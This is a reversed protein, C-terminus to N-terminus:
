LILQRFARSFGALSRQLRQYVTTNLAFRKLIHLKTECARPRCGTGGLVRCLAGPEEQHRSLLWRGCRGSAVM